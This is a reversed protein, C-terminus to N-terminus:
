LNPFDLGRAGLDTSLLINDESDRFREYNTRRLKKNLQSHLTTIKIGQSECYYQLELLSNVTNCFIITKANKQKM